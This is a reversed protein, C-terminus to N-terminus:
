STFHPFWDERDTISKTAYGTGDETRLTVQEFLDWPSVVTPIISGLKIAPPFHVVRTKCVIM